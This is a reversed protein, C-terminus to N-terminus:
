RRSAAVALALGGLVAALAPLYRWSAAQQWWQSGPAAAGPGPDLRKLAQRLEVLEEREGDLDKKLVGMWEDLSDLRASRARFDERAAALERGATGLSEQLGALSAGLSQLQKELSGSKSEQLELRGRLLELEQALRTRRRAEEARAAEAESAAAAQARESAELRRSLEELRAGSDAPAPSEAAAPAPSRGPPAEAPLLSHFLLLGAALPAPSLRLSLFARLSM